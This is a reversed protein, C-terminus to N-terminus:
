GTARPKTMASRTPLKKKWVFGFRRKASTILDAIKIEDIELWEYDKDEYTVIVRDGDLNVATFPSIKLADDNVGLREHLFGDIGVLTVWAIGLLTIRRWNPKIPKM